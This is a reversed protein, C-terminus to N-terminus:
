NLVAMEMLFIPRGICRAWPCLVVIAPYYKHLTDIFTTCTTLEVTSQGNFAVQLSWSGCTSGNNYVKLHCKMLSSNQKRQTSYTGTAHNLSIDSVTCTPHRVNIKHTNTIKVVKYMTVMNIEMVLFGIKTYM